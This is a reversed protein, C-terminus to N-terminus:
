SSIDEYCSTPDALDLNGWLGATGQQSSIDNYHTVYVNHLYKRVEGPYSVILFYGWLPKHPWSHRSKRVPRSHLSIDKYRTVYLAIFINGWKVPMTKTRCYGWLPKHPRHLYKGVKGPYSAILFYGWLPKDPWSHRSKRVPRSHLSIDKYRTVYVAIMSSIEGAHGKHPFIRM